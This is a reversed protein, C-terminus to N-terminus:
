EEEEDHLQVLETQYQQLEQIGSQRTLYIDLDRDLQEVLHLGLLNKVTEELLADSAEGTESLTTIKEGDFFFLEAVGPPILERLLHEKEDEEALYATEDIWLNVESVVRNHHLEWSRIVRYLQRQGLYVHEFDLQIFANTVIDGNGDRHLRRKLYAEYERQIVRNGLALRGHLCLRIAEVLTSKGVGNQGRFLIIPRYFQGNSEPKLDFSVDGAYIGFNHLKIHHLIM